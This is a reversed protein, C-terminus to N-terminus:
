PRNIWHPVDRKFGFASGAMMGQFYQPVLFSVDHAVAFLYPSLVSTTVLESQPAVTSITMLLAIGAMCGRAFGFGVGLIRDLTSLGVAHLTKQLLRGLLECAAATAVVILLFAILKAVEPTTILHGSIIWEGVKEYSLRALFFGGAFGLLGLIARVLGRRFAMFM